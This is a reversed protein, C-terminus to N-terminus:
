LLTGEPHPTLLHCLQKAASLGNTEASSCVCNECIGSHAPSTSGQSSSMVCSWHLSSLLQCSAEARKNALASFETSIGGGELWKLKSSYNKGDLGPIIKYRDTGIGKTRLVM